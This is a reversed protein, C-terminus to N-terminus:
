VKGKKQFTIETHEKVGSYYKKSSKKRHLASLQFM